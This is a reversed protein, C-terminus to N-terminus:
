FANEVNNVYNANYSAYAQRHIRESAHSIIASNPNPRRSIQYRDANFDFHNPALVVPDPPSGESGVNQHDGFDSVPSLPNKHSRPFRKSWQPDTQALDIWWIRVRSTRIEGLCRVYAAPMCKPGYRSIRIISNSFLEPTSRRVCLKQVDNQQPWYIPHKAPPDARM